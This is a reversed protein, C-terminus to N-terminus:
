LRKSGKSVISILKETYKKQKLYISKMKDDGNCIADQAASNWKVIDDHLIQVFNEADVDTMDFEFKVM